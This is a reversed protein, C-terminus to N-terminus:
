TPACGGGWGQSSTSLPAEADHVRASSAPEPPGRRAELRSLRCTPAARARAAVLRASPARDDLLTSSGKFRAAAGHPWREWSGHGDFDEDLEDTSVLVDAMALLAAEAMPPHAPVRYTMWPEWRPSLWIVDLDSILM